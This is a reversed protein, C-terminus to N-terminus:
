IPQQMAELISKTMSTVPMHRLLEDRGWTALRNEVFMARALHRSDTQNGRVIKETRKVYHDIALPVLRADARSLEDGLASASRLASSAGIGATPLFATGADGCLVVRGRSLEGARVDLLPWPWLDHAAGLATAIEPIDEAVQGLAGRLRDLVEGEGLGDEPGATATPVAAVFTSKGPVPYAGFFAGRLWYERVLNPPFIGEAGWWTWGVWGTEFRPQEGLLQDRTRSHIGDCGVLLDFREARGDSFTAEIEEGAEEFAEVATGMRLDIRDGCARRLVDVLAAHTTCYSPGYETLLEGFDVSQIVEGGHEALEYTRMETSAAVFDDYAGLGHLVASGFPYLALSYGHEGYEPAKEVVVPERGQRSLEAALALGAVGGGVILVRM